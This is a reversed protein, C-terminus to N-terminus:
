PACMLLHHTHQNVFQKFRLDNFTRSDGCPDEGLLHVAIEGFQIQPFYQVQGDLFHVFVNLFQTLRKHIFKVSPM